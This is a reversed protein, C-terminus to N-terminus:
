RRFPRLETKLQQNELELLQLTSKQKLYLSEARDAREKERRLERMANNLQTETHGLANQLSAINRRLEVRRTYEEGSGSGPSGEIQGGIQYGVSVDKAYGGPAAQQEGPGGASGGTVADRALATLASGVGLVGSALGGIGLGRPHAEEEVAGQAEGYVNGSSSAGASAGAGSEPKLVAQKLYMLGVAIAGVAAVGTAVTSVPKLRLSVAVQQKARTATGQKNVLSRSVPGFYGSPMVKNAKQWSTLAEKTDRGFYGTVQEGSRLYNEALLLRQLKEVHPGQEGFGFDREFRLGKSRSSTSASQATPAEAKAKKSPSAAPNAQQTKPEKAPPGGQGGAKKIASSGGRSEAPRRGGDVKDRGTSSRRGRGLSDGKRAKGGLANQGRKAEIRKEAATRCAVELRRRGQRGVGRAAGRPGARGVVSVSGTTTRAVAVM